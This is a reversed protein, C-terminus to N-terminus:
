VSEPQEMMVRYTERLSDMDPLGEMQKLTDEATQLASEYEQEVTLASEYYAEHETIFRVFEEKTMQMRRCLEHRQKKDLNKDIKLGDFTVSGETPEYLHIVTRGFTSKGCGSEGVLGLTEGKYIQLSVDDVAKLIKKNGVDFYKKLNKVDLLVQKDDNKM